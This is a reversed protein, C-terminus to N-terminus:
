IDLINSDIMRQIIRTCRERRKEIDDDIYHIHINWKEKARMHIMGKDKETM